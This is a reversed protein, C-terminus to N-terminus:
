RPKRVLELDVENLIKVLNRPVTEDVYSHSIQFPDLMCATNDLGSFRGVVYRGFYRSNEIDNVYWCGNYKQVFYEGVFYGVRTTLWIRDQEDEVAVNTLAADLIPAFRAANRLVEFAPSIGMQGVFEVLVPILEGYFGDFGEKRKKLFEIDQPKM